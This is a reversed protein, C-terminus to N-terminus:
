EGSELTTGPNSPIDMFEQLFSKVEPAQQPAAPQAAEPTKAKEKGKEYEDHRRQFARYEQSFESAKGRAYDEFDKRRETVDAEFDNRRERQTEFYDKRKEDQRNFFDDREEKGHKSRLFDKREDEMKKLFLEREQREKKTYDERERQIDKSFKERKKSLASDFKERVSSPNKSPDSMLQLIFAIEDNETKKNDPVQARVEDFKQRDATLRYKDDVLPRSEDSSRYTNTPSNACSMQFLLFVTISIVKSIKIKPM